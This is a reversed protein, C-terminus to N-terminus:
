LWGAGILAIPRFFSLTRRVKKGAQAAMGWGQGGEEGGTRGHGLGRRGEEESTRGHGLGRVGEKGGTRGHGMGQGGEEGYTRGHGLGRGSEEGSTRGHRLGRRGEGDTYRHGLGLGGEEVDTCGHGTGWGGGVKKGTPTERNRQIHTEDAERWLLPRVVGRREVLDRGWNKSSLLVLGPSSGPRPSRTNVLRALSSTKRASGLDAADRAM